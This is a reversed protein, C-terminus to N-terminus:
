QKHLTKTAVDGILHLRLLIHGKQAGGLWNWFASSFLFPLYTSVVLEMELRCSLLHLSAGLGLLSNLSQLGPQVGPRRRISSDRSKRPSGAMSTQRLILLSGPGPVKWRLILVCRPWGPHTPSREMGQWGLSVQHRLNSTKQCARQRDCHRGSRMKEPLASLRRRALGGTGEATRTKEKELTLSLDSLGRNPSSSCQVWFWLDLALEM